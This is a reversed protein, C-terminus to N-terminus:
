RYDDYDYTCENPKVGSCNHACRYDIGTHQGHRCACCHNSEVKQEIKDYKDLIEIINGNEDFSLEKNENDTM